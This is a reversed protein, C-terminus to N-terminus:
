VAALEWSVNAARSSTNTVCVEYSETAPPRLVRDISAATDLDFERLVNGDGDAVRIAYRVPVDSTGVLRYDLEFWGAAWEGCAKGGTGLTATHPGVGNQMGPAPPAYFLVRYDLTRDTTNALCTRYYSPGPDPSKVRVTKLEWVTRRLLETEPGGVTASARITWTVPASPTAHGYATVEGDTLTRDTCIVDGPRLGAGDAAQATGAAFVTVACVVLAVAAYIIKRLLTGTRPSGTGSAQVDDNM